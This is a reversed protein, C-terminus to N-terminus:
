PQRRGIKGYFGLQHLEVATPITGQDKWRQVSVKLHRESHYMCLHTSRNAVTAIQQKDPSNNICCSTGSWLKCPCLLLNSYECMKMSACLLSLQILKNVCWLKVFSTRPATSNETGSYSCM